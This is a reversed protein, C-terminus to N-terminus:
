TAFKGTRGADRVAKGTARNVGDLHIEWSEPTSVAAPRRLVRPRGPADLRTLLLSLAREIRAPTNPHEVADGLVQLLAARLRDLELGGLVIVVDEVRDTAAPAQSATCDPALGPGADVGKSPEITAGSLRRRARDITPWMTYTPEPHSLTNKHSSSAEGGCLAGDCM